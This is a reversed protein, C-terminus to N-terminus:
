HWFISVCTVFFVQQIFYFFEPFVFHKHHIFSSFTLIDTNVHLLYLNLQWSNITVFYTQKKKVIHHIGSKVVRRCICIRDHWACFYSNGRRKLVLEESHMKLLDQKLMSPYNTSACAALLDTGIYTNSPSYSESNSFYVRRKELHWPM